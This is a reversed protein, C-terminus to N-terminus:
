PKKIEVQPEVDKNLRLWGIEWREGPWLRDRGPKRWFQAAAPGAEVLEFGRLGDGAVLRANQWRVEVVPFAVGDAEGDNVLSVEVLAPQPRRTEVRLSERPARGAMVASLTPWRWNLLDESVPLRYWIISTLTVPRNTTWTQVLHALALPDARVERQQVGEPWSQSPGEASLGVFRGARDFATVYGYTPLAVRFPVGFQAAREVARRAAAPDCLTFPTDADRPREFSHVQLVYGDTAAVLRPFSPRNLWAPLATITVPLPAVKRRIAEVWLRYGDLNSEACDFDIQLEDPQLQHARAEAILFSAQDVLVRVADGMSDFPGSYAGVRLALGIPRHVSALASHDLAVRVIRPRGSKWTVEANLAILRTFQGAHQSISQLLPRGWTRQWIYVEQKLPEQSHGAAPEGRLLLRTLWLCALACIPTSFKM